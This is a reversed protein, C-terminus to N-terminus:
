QVSRERDRETDTETERQTERHRARRRDTQRDTLETLCRIESEGASKIDTDRDRM